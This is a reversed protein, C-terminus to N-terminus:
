LLSWALATEAELQRHYIRPDSGTPSRVQIADAAVNIAHHGCRAVVFAGGMGALNAYPARRHQGEQVAAMGHVARESFPAVPQSPRVFRRLKRLRATRERERAFRRM